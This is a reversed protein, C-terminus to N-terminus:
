FYADAWACKIELYSVFIKHTVQLLLPWATQQLTKLCHLLHLLFRWSSSPLAGEVIGVLRCFTLVKVENQYMRASTLLRGVPGVRM